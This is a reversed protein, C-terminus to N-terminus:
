AIASSGLSLPPLRVVKAQRAATEPSTESPSDVSVRPPEPTSADPSGGIAVPGPLQEPPSCSPPSPPDEMAPPLLAGTGLPMGSPVRPGEDLNFLRPGGFAAAPDEDESWDDEADAAAAEEDEERLPPVAPGDCSARGGRSNPEIPWSDSKYPNVALSSLDRQVPLTISGLAVPPHDRMQPKMLVGAPHKVSEIRGMDMEKDLRTQVRYAYALYEEAQDKAGSVTAALAPVRAAYTALLEEVAAAYAKPGARESSALKELAAVAADARAREEPLTAACYELQGAQLGAQQTRRTIRAQLSEKTLRHSSVLEMLTRPTSLGREDFLPTFSTALEKSQQQETPRLGKTRPSAPADSPPAPLFLPRAAGPRERASKEDESDPTEDHARPTIADTPTDSTPPTETTARTTGLSAATMPTQPFKRLTAELSDVRQALEANRADKEKCEEQLAEFEEVFRRVESVEVRDGSAHASFWTRFDATSGKPAAEPLPTVRERALRHRAYLAASAVVVAVAGFAVGAAAGPDVGDEELTEGRLGRSTPWPWAM